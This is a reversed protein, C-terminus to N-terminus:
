PDIPTTEPSELDTPTVPASIVPATGPLAPLPKVWLVIEDSHFITGSVKTTMLGKQYTILAPTAKRPLLADPMQYRMRADLDRLDPCLFTAQGAADTTAQEYQQFPYNLRLGTPLFPPARLRQHSLVVSLGPIPQQTADDLVTVTVTATKPTQDLWWNGGVCGGILCLATVMLKQRWAWTPKHTTSPSNPTSAEPMPPESTTIKFSRILDIPITTESHV